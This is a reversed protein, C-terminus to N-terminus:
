LRNTRPELGLPGVLGFRACLETPILAQKVRLLDCTRARNRGGYLFGIGYLDVAKAAKQTCLLFSTCDGPM